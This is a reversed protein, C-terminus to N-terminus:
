KLRTVIVAERTGEVKMKYVNGSRYVIVEPMYAYHYEYHFGTQQWIQGNTLKVITEGDWGEFEGDIRSEIAGPAPPAGTVNNNGM